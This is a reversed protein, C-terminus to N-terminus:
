TTDESGDGGSGALAAPGVSVDQLALLKLEVQPLDLGLLAFLSNSTMM